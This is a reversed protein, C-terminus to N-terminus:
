ASAAYSLDLEDLLGYLLDVRGLASDALAATRVKTKERARARADVIESRCWM